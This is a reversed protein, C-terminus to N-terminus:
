LQSRDICNVLRRGGPLRPNFSVGESYWKLLRIDGEGRFAHISVSPRRLNVLLTM